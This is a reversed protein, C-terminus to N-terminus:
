VNGGTAESSAFGHLTVRNGILQPTSPISNDAYDAFRDNVTTDVATGAVASIKGSLSATANVAVCSIAIDAINSDSVAGFDNSVECMQTAPQSAVSVQYGQGINVSRAFTFNGNGLIPLLEEQAGIMLRLTLNGILGTVKGGLSYATPVFAVTLTCAANVASTTYVLGNLDGSCGSVTGVEAGAGPSLSFSQRNGATVQATAPSISGTGSTQTDVTYVLPQASSSAARSSVSSVNGGGSGGGGCASLMLILSLFSFVKFLFQSAVLSARM